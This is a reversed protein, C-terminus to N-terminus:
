SAARASNPRLPTNVPLGTRPPKARSRGLGWAGGKNKAFIFGLHGKIVEIRRQGFPEDLRSKAWWKSGLDAALNVASVILLFSLPPRRATQATPHPPDAGRTSSPAPPEDM